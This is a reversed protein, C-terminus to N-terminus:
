SASVRRRRRIFLLVLILVAVAGVVVVVLWWPFPSQPTPAPAISQPPSAVIPALIPVLQPAFSDGPGSFLVRPTPNVVPVACLDYPGDPPPTAARPNRACDFVIQTGDPSFRAEGANVAAPTIVSPTSGDIGMVIVETAFPGGIPTTQHAFVISKGDPSVAPDYVRPAMYLDRVTMGTGDMISIARGTGVARVFVIRGDPTWDPSYNDGGHTLQTVMTGTPSMTYV